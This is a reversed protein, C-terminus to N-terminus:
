LGGLRSGAVGLRDILSPLVQGLVDGLKAWAMQVEHEPLGPLPPPPAYGPPPDVGPWYDGVVSEDYHRGLQVSDAYQHALWGPELNPVRNWDAVWAGILGPAVHQANLQALIQPWLALSFYLVPYSGAALKRAAWAVGSAPTYDYREVDAVNADLTGSGTTITVKRSNPFRRWGADSWAYDGDIYGAVMPTDVPIDFPNTSDRM